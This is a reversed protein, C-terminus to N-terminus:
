WQDHYVKDPAILESFTNSLAISNIYINFISFGKLKKIM